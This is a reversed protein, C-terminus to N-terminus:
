DLEYFINALAAIAATECRLIRKSLKVAYFGAQEAEQIEEKSFGGEPGIIVLLNNPRQTSLISRLTIKEEGEYPILALDYQKKLKLVQSFSMAASIKCVMNRGSQEAAEKAIKQWHSLKHERREEELEKFKPISRESLVPIIKAAGLETAKQIILDFKKGKPLSQALTVSLAPEASEKKHKIVKCLISDKEEKLIQAEFVRSQGDFVEIKDKAKLRLVNRIHNVDSGLIRVFGEEVQESPVFFRHM